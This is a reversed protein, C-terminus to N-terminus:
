SCYLLSACVAREDQAVCEEEKRTGARGKDVGVRTVRGRVAVWKTAITRRGDEGSEGLQWLLGTLGSGEGGGVGATWSCGM